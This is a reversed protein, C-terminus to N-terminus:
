SVRYHTQTLFESGHAENLKKAKRCAACHVRDECKVTKDTGVCKVKNLVPNPKEFKGVLSMVCLRSPADRVNFYQGDNRLVYLLKKHLSCEVIFVTQETTCPAM